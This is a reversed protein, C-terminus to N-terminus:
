PLRRYKNILTQSRNRKVLHPKENHFRTELAKLVEILRNFDTELIQRQEVNDPSTLIKACIIDDLKHQIMLITEFTDIPM